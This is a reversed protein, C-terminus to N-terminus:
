GQLKRLFEYTYIGTAHGDTFYLSVAYNGTPEANRLKVDQPVSNPNLTKEGTVESVCTACQCALRLDRANYNVVKDDGWTIQLRDANADIAKPQTQTM